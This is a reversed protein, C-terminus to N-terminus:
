SNLAKFDSSASTDTAKYWIANATDLYYEGIFNPVAGTNTPTDAGSQYTLKEVIAEKGFDNRGIADGASEKSSYFSM